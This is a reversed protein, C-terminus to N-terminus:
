VDTPRGDPATKYKINFQVSHVTDYLTTPTSVTCHVSHYLTGPRRFQSLSQDLRLRPGTKIGLHPTAQGM